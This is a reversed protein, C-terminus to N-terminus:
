QTNHKDYYYKYYEYMKEYAEKSSYVAPDLNTKGKITIEVQWDDKAGKWHPIVAVFIKIRHCWGAMKIQEPTYAYFKAVRGPKSKTFQKRIM